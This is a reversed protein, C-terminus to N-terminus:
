ASHETLHHWHAAEEAALTLHIRPATYDPLTICIGDKTPTIQAGTLHRATTDAGVPWVVGAGDALQIMAAGRNQCLTIRRPADEPFERLWATRARAETEIRVTRSLGLLHLLVAIGAIGFIVLPLLITLPM